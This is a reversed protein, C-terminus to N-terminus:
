KPSPSVTYDGVTKALIGGTTPLTFEQNSTPTPITIKSFFTKAANWFKLSNAM